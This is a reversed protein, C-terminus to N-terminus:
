EFKYSTRIADAVPTEFFYGYFAEIRVEKNIAHWLCCFYKVIKKCCKIYKKPYKLSKFVKESKM